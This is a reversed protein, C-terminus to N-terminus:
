ELYYIALFSTSHQTSLLFTRPTKDIKVARKLIIKKKRRLPGRALRSKPIVENVTNDMSPIIKATFEFFFPKITNPMIKFPRTNTNAQKKSSAM